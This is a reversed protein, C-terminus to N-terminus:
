RLWWFERAGVVRRWRVKTYNGGEGGRVQLRKSVSYGCGRERAHRLKKSNIEIQRELGEAKKESLTTFPKPDGEIDFYGTSDCKTEARDVLTHHFNYSLRLKQLQKKLHEIVREIQAAEDAFKTVKCLGKNLICFFNFSREQELIECGKPFRRLTSLCALDFLERPEWQWFLGSSALIRGKARLNISAVDICHEKFQDKLIVLLQCPEVAVYSQHSVSNKNTGNEAMLMWEDGFNQGKDVEGITAVLGTTSEAKMVVRGSLLICCCDVVEGQQFIIDGKM